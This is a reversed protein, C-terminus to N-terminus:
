VTDLCLTNFKVVKSGGVVSDNYHEDAQKLEKIRDNVETITSFLERYTGGEYFQGILQFHIKDTLKYINNDM